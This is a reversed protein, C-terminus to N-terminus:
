ELEAHISVAYKYPYRLFSNWLQLHFHDAFMLVEPTQKHTALWKPTSFPFFFSKSMTSKM